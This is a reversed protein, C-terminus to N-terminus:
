AYRASMRGCYFPASRYSTKFRLTARRPFLAGGGHDLAIEVLQASYRAGLRDDPRQEVPGDSPARLPRHAHPALARVEKAPVGDSTDGSVM